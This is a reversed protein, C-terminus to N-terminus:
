YTCTMRRIKHSSKWERIFKCATTMAYTAASHGILYFKSGDEYNNQLMINKIVFGMQEGVVYSNIVAGNPDPLNGWTWDVLIINYNGKVLFQDKYERQWAVRCISEVIGGTIIITEQEPDFASNEPLKGGCKHLPEAREKNKTTFLWFESNPVNTDTGKYIPTFAEPISTNCHEFDITEFCPEGQM